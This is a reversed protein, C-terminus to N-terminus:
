LSRALRPRGARRVLKLKRLAREVIKEEVSDRTVLRYVQLLPRPPCSATERPNYTEASSASAQLLPQTARCSVPPPRSVRIRSATGPYLRPLRPGAGAAM